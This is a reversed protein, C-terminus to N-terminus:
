DHPVDQATYADVASALRCEVDLYANAPVTLTGDIVDRWERAADIVADDTERSHLLAYYDEHAPCCAYPEGDRPEIWHATHVRAPERAARLAALMTLIETCSFDECRWPSPRCFKAARQEWEALKEDTVAGVARPEEIWPRQADEAPHQRDFWPRQADSM